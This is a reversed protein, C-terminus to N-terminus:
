LGPVLDGARRHVFESSHIEVRQPREHPFIRREDADHRRVVFDPRYLGDALDGRDRVGFARQHKRVRHLRRAYQLEVDPREADIQHGCGRM